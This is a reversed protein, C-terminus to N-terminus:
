GKNEEDEKQTQIKQENYLNGWLELLCILALTGVGCLEGKKALEEM